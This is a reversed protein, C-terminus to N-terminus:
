QCATSEVTNRIDDPESMLPGAPERGGELRSAPWARRCHRRLSESRPGETGRARRHCSTESSRGVNARCAPAAGDSLSIRVLMAFIPMAGPLGTTLYTLVCQRGGLATM